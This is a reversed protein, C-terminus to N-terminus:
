NILLVNKKYNIIKIANDTESPLRFYDLGVEGLANPKLPLSWYSKLMKVSVSWDQDVYLPHIGVTYYLRNNNNEALNRYVSWDSPSTGVNIFKKLGVDAASSLVNVLEGKEYFSKLHCHSDIWNMLLLYQIKQFNFM